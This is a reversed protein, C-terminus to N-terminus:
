REGPNTHPIILIVNFFIVSHNKDYSKLQLSRKCMNQSSEGWIWYISYGLTRCMKKLKNKLSSKLMVKKKKSLCRWFGKFSTIEKNSKLGLFSIGSSDMDGYADETMLDCGTIYFAIPISKLSRLFPLLSSRELTLLYPNSGTASDSRPRM